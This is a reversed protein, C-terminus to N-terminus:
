LTLLHAPFLFPQNASLRKNMVYNRMVLRIYSRTEDYPIEEIFEHVNGNYLREKWELAKEVKANYGATRMIFQAGAQEIMDDMHAVGLPINVGPRYLEYDETFYVGAKDQVGRAIQPLLQVLGYANAWSRAFTNFGSEQRMVAYVYEKEIRPQRATAAQVIDLYPQPYFLSGHDTIFQNREAAPIRTFLLSQITVFDKFFARMLLDEVEVSTSSMVLKSYKQALILEEGYTLWLMVDFDTESMTSPKAVNSLDSPVLSTILRGLKHHAMFGYFGHPDVTTLRDWQGLAEARNGSDHEGQAAWFLFKAESNVNRTRTLAQELLRASDLPRNLKRQAMAAQWHAEDWLNWHWDVWNASNSAAESVLIRTANAGSNAAQTWESYNAHIRTQLWYAAAKLIPDLWSLALVRTVERKAVTVDGYSWVDRAYQMWADFMTRCEAATIGNNAKVHKECYTAVNQSASLFASLPGNYFRFKAKEVERIGNRAKFGDAISVGSAAIIKNYYRVADNWDENVRFDDAVRM